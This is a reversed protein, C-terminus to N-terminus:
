LRATPLWERGREIDAESLREDTLFVTEYPITEGLRAVKWGVMKHTWVSVTEADAESLANVVADVVAIHEAKFVGLNPRRLNV